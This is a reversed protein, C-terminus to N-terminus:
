MVEKKKNLICALANFLPLINTNHLNFNFPKNNKTNEADPNPERSLILGEYTFGKTGGVTITGVQAYIRHGLFYKAKNFSSTPSSFDNVENSTTNIVHSPVETEESKELPKTRNSTSPNKKSARKKDETKKSKKDKKDKKDKNTRVEPLSKFRKKLPAEADDERKRKEGKTTEKKKESSKKLVIKAQKPKKEELKKRVQKKEVEMEKEGESESSSINNMWEDVDDDDDTSLLSANEEDDDYDEESENNSDSESSLNPMSTDTKNIMWRDQTSSDCEPNDPYKEINEPRKLTKGKIRKLHIKEVAPSPSNDHKM